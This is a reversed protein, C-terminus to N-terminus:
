TADRSSLYGKLKKSPSYFKTTLLKWNEIERGSDPHILSGMQEAEEIESVTFFLSEEEDYFVEYGSDLFCFPEAVFLDAVKQIEELSEKTKCVRRLIPLSLYTFSPKLKNLLYDCMRAALSDEGLSSLIEVQLTRAELEKM